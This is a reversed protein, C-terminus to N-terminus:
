VEQCRTLINQKENKYTRHDKITGRIKHATGVSWSKAATTWVYVNEDKDKMIHMTSRGHYSDLEIAREVVVEIEIREGLEGVFQSPTPDYLLQSVACKVLSEARLNGTEDGVIDWVLKIPILDAPMDAPLEETSVVYWGWWRTYRCISKRFWDLHPYTDGKFITIYGKEFGLAQKQNKFKFDDASKVEPYLKNYETETYWRAQRVNGTKPHKIKVYQKGGVAYPESVIEYTQYSKAVM